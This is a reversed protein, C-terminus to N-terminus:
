ECGNEVAILHPGLFESILRCSIDSRTFLFLHGAGHVTELRANPILGALIRGNLAPIIPDCDGRLVLTPQGISRLWLGSAFNRLALVQYLYGRRSPPMEFHILPELRGDHENIVDPGYLVPAMRALYSPSSFRRPGALRRLIRPGAPVMLLGAATACLVLRRVREPHRHAISQALAGGWSVGLVDVTDVGLGDLMGTVTDAVRAMSPPRLPLSSSGVGPADFAITPHDGLAARVPVWAELAAGIGNCLLLPPRLTSTHDGTLSVRIRLGDVTQWSIREGTRDSM